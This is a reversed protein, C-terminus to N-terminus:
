APVRRQGRATLIWVIVAAAAVHQLMLTVVGAITAGPFAAGGADTLLWLDPLLSLLLAMTVMIRFLRIPEAAFRCVMAFVVLGALVGISTLFITPGLSQLPSFEQRIDLVAVATARLALNVIVAGVLALLGASM